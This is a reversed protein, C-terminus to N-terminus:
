GWRAKARREAEDESLPRQAPDPEPQATPLFHRESVLNAKTECGAAALVAQRVLEGANHTAAAVTAAQQWDDGWPRQRYEEQWLHYEWAPIRQKAEGYTM